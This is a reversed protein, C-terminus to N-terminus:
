LSELADVFAEVTEKIPRRLITENIFLEFEAWEESVEIAPRIAIGRACLREPLAGAEGGSIRFRTVNTGAAPRL